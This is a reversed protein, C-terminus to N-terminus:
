KAAPQVSSAEVYVKSKSARAAEDTSLNFRTMADHESPMQRVTGQVSVVDGPNFAKTNEQALPAANGSGEPTGKGKDALQGAGNDHVQSGAAVHDKKWAGGNIETPREATGPGETNAANSEVVLVPTGNSDILFAGGNASHAVQAHAIDVPQGVLDKADSATLQAPDHVANAAGQASASNSAPNALARSRRGHGGIAIWFIAGIVIIIAIWAWPTPGRDPRPRNTDTISPTNAV